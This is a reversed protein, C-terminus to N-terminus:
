PLMTVYRRSLPITGGVLSFWGGAGGDFYDRADGNSVSFGPETLCDLKATHCSGDGLRDGGAEDDAADIFGDGEIAVFQAKFGSEPLRRLVREERDDAAVSCLDEDLGALIYCGEWIVLTMVVHSPIGEDVSFIGIGQGSVESSVARFKGARELVRVVPQAAEFDRVGVVVSQEKTAWSLLVAPM